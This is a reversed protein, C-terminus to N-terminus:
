ISPEIKLFLIYTIFEVSRISLNQIVVKQVAITKGKVIASSKTWVNEASGDCMSEAWRRGSGNEAKEPGGAGM